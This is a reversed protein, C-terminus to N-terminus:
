SHFPKHSIGDFAPRNVKVAELFLSEVHCGIFELVRRVGWYRMRCRTSERSKFSEIWEIKAFVCVFDATSQMDDTHGKVSTKHRIDPGSNFM